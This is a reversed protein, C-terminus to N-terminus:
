VPWKTQVSQYHQSRLQFYLLFTQSEASATRLLLQLFKLTQLLVLRAVHPPLFSFGPLCPVPPLPKPASSTEVAPPQVCQWMPSSKWLRCWTHVACSLLAFLADNQDTHGLFSSQHSYMELISLQEFSLSSGMVAKGSRGHGSCFLCHGSVLFLGSPSNILIALCPM